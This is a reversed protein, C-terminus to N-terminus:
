WLKSVLAVVVVFFRRSREVVSVSGRSSLILYFVSCM